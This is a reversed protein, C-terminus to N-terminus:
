KRRGFLTAIWLDGSDKGHTYAIQFYVLAVAISIGVSIWCIARTTRLLVALALVDAATV